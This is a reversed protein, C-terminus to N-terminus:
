ALSSVMCSFVRIVTAGAGCDAGARAGDRSAQPEAGMAQGQHSGAVPVVAHVQHAGCAAALADPEAEEE